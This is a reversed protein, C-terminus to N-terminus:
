FGLSLSKRKSSGLSLWVRNVNEFDSGVVLECLKNSSKFPYRNFFNMKKLQDMHQKNVKPCQFIYSGVYSYTNAKLHFIFQQSSNMIEFRKGNLIFGKLQYHGPRLDIQSLTKDMLLKQVEAQGVEQVLLEVGLPEIVHFIARTKGLVRPTKQTETSLVDDTAVSTEPNKHACGIPLLVLLLFALKKM